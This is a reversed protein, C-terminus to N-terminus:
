KQFINANLLSPLVSSQTTPTASTAPCSSSTSVPLYSTENSKSQLQKEVPFSSTNCKTTSISNDSSVINTTTDKSPTVIPTTTTTTNVTNTSGTTSESGTIGNLTGPYVVESNNNNDNNNKNDSSINDFDAWKFSTRSNVGSSEDRM